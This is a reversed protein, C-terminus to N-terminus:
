ISSRVHTSVVQLKYNKSYNFYAYLLFPFNIRYM